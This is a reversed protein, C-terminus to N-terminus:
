DRHPLMTIKPGLCAAVWPLDMVSTLDMAAAVNLLMGHAVFNVLEEDSTGTADAVALWLKGFSTQTLARVDDDDCAAFAHMQTLLLTREQLFTRYADGMAAMAEEGRLDGAADVLIQTAREFTREVAALFLAKKTPFLRFLYPQSIGAREAIVETSTGELGGRAFETIAAALVLERREAAPM